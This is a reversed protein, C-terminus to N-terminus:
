ADWARRLIASVDLTAGGGGFVAGWGGHPDLRTACFGEAAAPWSLNKFYWRAYM